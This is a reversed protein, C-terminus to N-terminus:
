ILNFESKGSYRGDTYIEVKYRGKKLKDSWQFVAQGSAETNSYNIVRTFSYASERNTDKILFNDKQLNLVKGEPDTLILHVKKDGQMAFPNHLLNFNVVMRNIQRAKISQKSKNSKRVRFNEIYINDAMIVNAIQMLASNEGQLGTITANLNQMEKNLWEKENSLANIRSELDGKQKKLDNLQKKLSPISANEKTLLNIKNNVLELSSNASALAEDLELNKQKFASSENKFKHVDRDLNTNVALLSDVKLLGKNRQDKLNLNSNFLIGNGVFSLVLVGGATLKLVQSKEM